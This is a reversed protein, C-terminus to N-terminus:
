NLFIIFSFLYYRHYGPEQAAQRRYECMEQMIEPDTYGVSCCFHHHTTWSLWRPLHQPKVKTGRKGEKRQPFGDARQSSVWTVMSLSCPSVRLWRALLQLLLESVQWGRGSDGHLHIQPGLQCNSWFRQSVRLWPQRIHNYSKIPGWCEKRGLGKEGSFLVFILHIESIALLFNYQCVGHVGPAACVTSLPTFQGKM